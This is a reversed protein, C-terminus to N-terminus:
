SPDGPDIILGGEPARRRDDAGTRGTVVRRIGAIVGDRRRQVDAEDVRHAARRVQWEIREAVFGRAGQDLHGIWAAREDTALPLGHSAELAGNEACEGRACGIEVVPKRCIESRHDIKVVVTELDTECLVLLAIENGEQASQLPNQRMASASGIQPLFGGATLVPPLWAM